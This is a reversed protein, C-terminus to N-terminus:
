LCPNQAQRQVTNHDENGAQDRARVVFFRGPPLSPTAFATVGVVTWNPTSFDEDGSTSAMYIDYTIGASASVDDTAANWSLSVPREEGPTMPGPFCQVARQLGAFSPPTTDSGPALVRLKFRALTRPIVAPGACISPCYFGDIEVLKGRVTGECWSGQKPLLKAHLRQGRRAPPLDVVVHRGCSSQAIVSYTIVRSGVRGTRKQATFSVRFTTAPDGVSPVVRLRLAPRASAGTALVSAVAAILVSAVVIRRM